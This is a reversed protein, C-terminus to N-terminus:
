IFDKLTPLYTLATGIVTFYPLNIYHIHPLISNSRVFQFHKEYNDSYAASDVTMACMFDDLCNQSLLPYQNRLTNREAQLDETLSSADFSNLPCITNNTNHLYSLQNNQENTICLGRQPLFISSLNSPILGVSPYICKYYKLIEFSLYREEDNSIKLKVDREFEINGIGKCVFIKSAKFRQDKNDPYKVLMTIGDSDTKEFEVSEALKIHKDNIKSAMIAHYISINWIKESYPFLLNKNITDGFSQMSFNAVSDIMRHDQKKAIGKLEQLTEFEELDRCLRFGTDSDGRFLPSSEYLEKLYTESARVMLAIQKYDELQRNRIRRMKPVIPNVVKVGKAIAGMPSKRENILLFKGKWNSQKLFHYLLAPATAGNGLFIADFQKM